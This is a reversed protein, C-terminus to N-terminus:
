IPASPFGEEVVVEDFDVSNENAEIERRVLEKTDTEIEVGSDFAEREKADMDLSISKCLRHLVTKKAMEGWFKTWAMANKAKSQNRVIEIEEKSMSECLMGGDEFLCVAFAGIYGKQNFPIAKFSVTQQGHEVGESFEDGERVLKAYIDKIPRTSYKKALKISGKYSPVFNLTSGYPVLYYESNVSDLGMFAARVIGSKIQQSGYKKAFEILTENGNLTAIANNVFRPINLDAPLGAKVDPMNLEATLITSLENAM